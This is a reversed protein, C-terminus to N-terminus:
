AVEVGFLSLLAICQDPSIKLNKFNCQTLDLNLISSGPIEADELSSHAFSAGDLLCDALNAESLNSYSFDVETFDNGSLNCNALHIRVFRSFRFISETIEAQAFIMKASVKNVFNAYEFDAALAKCSKIKVGFLDAYKFKAQSIDCNM